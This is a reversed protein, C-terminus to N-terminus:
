RCSFRPRPADRYGPIVKLRFACRVSGPNDSGWLWGRQVRGADEVPDDDPPPTYTERWKTLCWEWVNGAMDAAGYPSDGRPHINVSLPPAGGPGYPRCNAGLPVWDDGWPWLRGCGGRAAKEWEAETPLRYPKGTKESLWM